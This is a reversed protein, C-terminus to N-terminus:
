REDQTYIQVKQRSQQQTQANESDAAQEGKAEAKGKQHQYQYQNQHRSKEMSQSQAKEGSALLLGSGQIGQGALAASSAVSFFVATLAASLTSTKFIKM